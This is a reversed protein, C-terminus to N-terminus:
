AKKGKRSAAKRAPAEVAAEPAVIGDMVDVVPADIEEDDELESSDVVEGSEENYADNDQMQENAPEAEVSDEQVGSVPVMKMLPKIAGASLLWEAKEASIPKSIVEGPTYFCGAIETHHIAVYSM